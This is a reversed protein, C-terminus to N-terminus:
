HGCFTLNDLPLVLLFDKQKAEAFKGAVIRYPLVSCNTFHQLLCTFGRGRVQVLLWKCERM